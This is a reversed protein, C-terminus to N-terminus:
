QILKSVENSCTNGTAIMSFIIDPIGHDVEKATSALKSYIHKVAHCVQEETSLVIAPCLQVSPNSIHLGTHTLNQENEICVTITDSYWSRRKVNTNSPGSGIETLEHGILDTNNM